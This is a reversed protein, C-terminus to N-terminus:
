KSLFSKPLTYGLQINKLRLYSANKMWFSSNKQNNPENFALRPFKADPNEPTWYDKDQEQMTGGLYFPMTAHNSLYGDAMGNTFAPTKSIKDLYTLSQNNALTFLYAEFNTIEAMKKRNNWIRIFVDSVVEDSLAKSRLFYYAFRFAQVSHIDFLKAFSREDGEAVRELLDKTIEKLNM